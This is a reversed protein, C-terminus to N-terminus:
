SENHNLRFKIKTCIPSQSCDTTLRLGDQVLGDCFLLPITLVAEYGSGLGVDKHSHLQSM